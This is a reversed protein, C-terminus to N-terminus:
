VFFSKKSKQYNDAAPNIFDGFFAPLILAFPSTDVLIAIKGELLANSVTDPRESRVVTPFHTSNELELYEAITGSDLIGDIDIKELEKKIYELNENDTIDEFYLMNIM